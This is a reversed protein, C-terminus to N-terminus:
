RRVPEATRQPYAQDFLKIFNRKPKHAARVSLLYAALDADKGLRMLWAVKGLLRIAQEYAANHKLAV